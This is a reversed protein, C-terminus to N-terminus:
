VQVVSHFSELIMDVDAIERNQTNRRTTHKSSKAYFQVSCNSYIDHLVKYRIQRCKLTPLKLEKLRNTYSFHQCVLKTARRQVKELQKIDSKAHLNWVAGAYDLESRVLSKYLSVFVDATIYTIINYRIIHISLRVPTVSLAAQQPLGCLLKICMNRYTTYKKEITRKHQKALKAIIFYVYLVDM